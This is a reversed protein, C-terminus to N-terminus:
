DELTKRAQPMSWSQNPDLRIKAQPGVTSRLAELMAAETTADVGVKLYYVSYGREVGDRGQEAMEEPTGWRLYYFYDVEDRLAGGFLRYLPQGCEKGCLDWLAMDVGAFALNGTMAQFQWGGAIFVDRHIAESQWPDRGLVFPPWLGSRARSARPTPLPVVREGAWWATTRASSSSSTASGTATSM